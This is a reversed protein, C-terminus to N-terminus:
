PKWSAAPRVIEMEPGPEGEIARMRSVRLIDVMGQVCEQDPAYVVTATMVSQPEFELKVSLCNKTPLGLAELVKVGLPQALTAM